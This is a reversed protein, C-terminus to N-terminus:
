PLVIQSFTNSKLSLLILILAAIAFILVETQILHYGGVEQVKWSKKLLAWPM